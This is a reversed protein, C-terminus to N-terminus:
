RSADSLTLLRYPDLDLIAKADSSTSTAKWNLPALELLRHEPWTPLLCCLDRLYAWPEVDHM